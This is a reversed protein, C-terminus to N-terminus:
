KAVREASALAHQLNSFRENQLALIQELINTSYGGSGKTKHHEEGHAYANEALKKHPMRFSKLITGLQNIQYASRLTSADASTKLREIAISLLSPKNKFNWYIEGVFNLNYLLYGEKFKSYYEDSCDCSWLLHDFVFMPMEVAGPGIYDKGYDVKIPDYYFRLENAFVAPSVNRKAHVIGRVMGSIKEQVNQCLIAFIPDSIDVSHLKQLDLIASFLDPMAMKVSEILCKEDALGTYTRMRLGDPNWSTYHILTDRPPLDTKVMLVLLVYELEPVVEVPEIGLKKLIGIFIGLDRMTAVAEEYTFNELADPLPLLDYLLQIIEKTMKKQNLSHLTDIHNDFGIPDLTVITETRTLWQQFESDFASTNM